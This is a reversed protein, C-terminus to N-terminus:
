RPLIRIFEKAQEITMGVDTDYGRVPPGVIFGPGCLPQAQGAAMFFYKEEAYLGEDNVYLTDGNPFRAGIAIYGGVLKQMDELSRIVTERFEGSKPDFAIAAIERVKAM